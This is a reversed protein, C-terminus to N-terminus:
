AQERVRSVIGVAITNGQSRLFVRGLAKLTSFEEVCVEKDLKVEIVATQRATLFRPIKKSAKGSKHELLSLIKVMSASVKAHHIHLEFQLGVLIPVTIDLVLIKLELSSAVPVPYDPHCVVGGSMVHSPDIGQLGIAINDGARALKCRSSDREIIKVTALEGSPMILVKSGSRIAGTEVKGCIAVQGLMQSSFVDCIPLRLPKLVDCHPPPLTDIAKLLCNGDYWSSLRTDSAATMLNENAMASLPVWTIASEKYGCSRLFIGLQSKIFNFREKSYEVLDMKNVAVILNDVGFSRILQSHEKTQGIGNVGMGAEFSGISADIVLVAADSQTTGSIMNPVFDKHGPSDLLVVHYNKTNFYAVGVTMTIGREREDASEDMAWAYAFSGKGKEKAEKDYKHMQKKSIRGLAHLLRGCLTSKGSDVHGVIALNLQRPTDEDEHQLMWSEPKYLSFSVPKQIKAKSKKPKRELSLHQLEHDLVLTENHCDVVFSSSSSGEGIEDLKVLSSPDTTTGKEIVCNDSDVAKKGAICVDNRFNRSSKLGTTVMDDPSPTDFKFPVINIRRGKCAMYTKHLVDLTAHTNGTANRSAKFGDSFIVDKSMTSSPSFLSRALVSVSYHKNRRKARDEVELANNFYLSLDRLVGCLECSIHREDNGHACISCQWLGSNRSSELDSRNDLKPVFM